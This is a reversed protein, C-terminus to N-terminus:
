SLSSRSFASTSSTSRCVRSYSVYPLRVHPLAPSLFCVCLQEFGNDKFIEFGYIDLVSLLLAEPDDIYMAANIAGVIWDFLRSYLTKALADRSYRSDEANQPCSYTSVRKGTGGTTITRSCLAKEVIGPDARLLYAFTALPNPDSITASDGQGAFDINGLWLIGSVLRWVEAKDTASVGIVDMSHLVDNMEAKDDVGPIVYCGSQNLYHFWDPAAGEMGFESRWENPCGALLNYFAHFNREDRQQYVVRSKELLYNTIRGGEPDGRLDFQIEMYKGFRSSNNNRVTRANGFAELLPNSQLIVDKTRVVEPSDGSVAAVYEMVKKSAETKGAGSEGSIIVCHNEAESMMGRYMEDAIAYVHPSLEYRYRGRYDKLTRESYLNPILKFPNVSILV